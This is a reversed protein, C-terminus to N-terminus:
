SKYRFNQKNLLKHSIKEGCTNELTYITQAIIKDMSVITMQDYNKKIGVHIFEVLCYLKIKKIGNWKKAFLIKSRCEM